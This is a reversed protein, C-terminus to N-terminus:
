SAATTDLVELECRIRHFGYGIPCGCTLIALPAVPAAPWRISGEEGRRRAKARYMAVDAQAVLSGPEDEPSHALAWGLSMGVVGGPRLPVSAAAHLRQLLGDAAAADDVACVVVFEDGGIRAVIDVDRVAATLRSAATLLMDDGAAHGFADNVVKLEDVDLYAVLVLDDNRALRHLELQLREFLLTRNTLGTLPDHTARHALDSERAEAERLRSTLRSIHRVGVAVVAGLAAAAALVLRESGSALDSLTATVLVAVALSGAVWLDSRMEGRM